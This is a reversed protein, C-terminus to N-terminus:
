YLCFQMKRASLLFALLSKRLTVWRMAIGICARVWLVWESMHDCNAVVGSRENLIPSQCLLFYRHFLSRLAIHLAVRPISALRPTIRWRPTESPESPARGTRRLWEARVSITKPSTVWIPVALKTFIVYINTLPTIVAKLRVSVNANIDSVETAVLFLHNCLLRRFEQSIIIQLQARYYEVKMGEHVVYRGKHKGKGCDNWCYLLLWHM